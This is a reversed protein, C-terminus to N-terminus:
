AAPGLTTGCTGPANRKSRLTPSPRARGVRSIPQSAALTADAPATASPLTPAPVPALTPLSYPRARAIRPPMPEALTRTPPTTTPASTATFATPSTRSGSVPASIAPVRSAAPPRRSISM